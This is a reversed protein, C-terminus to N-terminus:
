RKMEEDRGDEENYYSYTLPFTERCFIQKNSKRNKIFFNSKLVFIVLVFLLLVCLVVRSKSANRIFGSKVRVLVKVVVVVVVVVKKKGDQEVVESDDDTHADYFDDSNPPFMM